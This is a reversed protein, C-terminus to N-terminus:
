IREQREKNTQEHVDTQAKQIEYLLNVAEQFGESKVMHELIEKMKAAIETQQAITEALAADRAAADDALRRVSELGSQAQPIMEEVVVRMPEIIEKLLRTQLRGGDEELRNNQVEIVISFMREAIAGTNQGVLKQRKHYQILQDKQPPALGAQGKTGAELARSDTVLDEQNKLLREFEQRQEKERRLLDTRLEEETVIRLLFESSRGINPGSIDDNDASEFRFSLGTGTPIQLPELEIVDDFSLDAKGLLDKVQEFTLKGEGDPQTLDDGKWRYAVDASTLGFDDTVRCTFPVRAQPVVMGSVGILKVRVRPERDIRTRLGFTTPRRSTLGLEDKLEITYQGPALDAASIQGSFRLKDAIKLPLRKGEVLLEAQVLPKNATGEIALSSGKLVYYPGKGPPLEEPKNSAYKPPTVVLKLSEVAPQEVLEVRVWETVADGGRARFEFPEIVSAFTTEFLRESTKKMAVPARGRARRFDLYVADPIVESDDRVAVTQTWDEGRPFVVTGDEGVREIVLYTKQPWTKYGLLINRNFWISVTETTAVGYGILGFVGLALVLLVANLRFERGDLINSFSVKEAAATGHRVTQAVLAPSMGRSEADEMQALQLASIMSQGLQKNGAEVSLALAEDSMSASLPRILRRYIRWGIVGAILFLMVIRQPKDLRFFWDIALDIGLLALAMWLVRVLGDVWFWAAIQTRLAHLRAVVGRTQQALPKPPLAVDSM